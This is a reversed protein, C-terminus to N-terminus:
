FDVKAFCIQGRYTCPVIVQRAGVQRAYRPMFEYGKEYTRLSPNRSVTGGPKIINDLLQKDRKSIDNFLFHIEGSTNFISFSIYSDNDDAFQQKHVINSWEPRGEKTISLVLINDYYYRMGQNSFSNFPRYYGYYSPTYMYYNYPTFYPSGYLYDYRNWNNMGTSQSSQDEATLIYSGDKKLVINRIYFDNFANKNSGSSKAVSKLEEDFETFVSASASDAQVDWIYSYMGNITGGAADNYYFSNLVYRKNLNDIKVKVEDLYANSFPARVMKFSDLSAAKTVLILSSANERATKRVLNSFVFNGDNDVFFDGFSNKRDEYDMGLRSQHLLQLDNDYLRTVFNARDDKRQMKFVLIKKKDDSWITSYIKSDGLSGIHTTDLEVPENVKQGMADLKQAMCYLTGKKQYQYILWIYDNYPICDVNFTKGPLYDLDVKEKLIMSDNFINIAYKWRVNKFVLINGNLKGLIEFNMTMADDRYPESFTINQAQIGSSFIWILGLALLWQKM